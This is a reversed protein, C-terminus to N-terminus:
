NGEGQEALMHANSKAAAARAGAPDPLRAQWVDLRQGILSELQAIDEAFFGRLVDVEAGTFPLTQYSRNRLRYHLSKLWRPALAPAQLFYLAKVGLGRVEPAGPKILLDLQNPRFDPDVGVFTYIRRMYAAPDAARDEYINILLRERPFYSLYERLHKAYLCRDVIEPHRECAELIGYRRDFHFRLYDSYLRSLPDRLSCILRADPLVESIRRAAQPHSLLSATKEVVVPEGAYGSFFTEEWWKTGHDFHRDFFHTEEDAGFVQPHERLCELMWGTACRIGGIILVNPLM